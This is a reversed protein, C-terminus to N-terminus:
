LLQKLGWFRRNTNKLCGGRPKVSVGFAIEYMFDLITDNTQILFKDIM